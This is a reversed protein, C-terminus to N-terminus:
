EKSSRFRGARAAMAHIILPGEDTGAVGVEILNVARDPGLFLTVDDDRPDAAVAIFNRLAHRIDEDTIGHRHASAVVPAEWLEVGDAYVSSLTAARLLGAHLSLQELERESVALAEHTGILDEAATNSSVWALVACL